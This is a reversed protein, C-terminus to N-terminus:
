NTVATADKRVVLFHSIGFVRLATSEAIDTMRQMFEGLGPRRDAINDFGPYIHSCVEFKVSLGNFLKKIGRQTYIRVHHCFLNRILDPTYNILPLLRFVFKSGVFFGHTEFPYLRNPAFIIVQGGPRLCRYAEAVTARDDEVHEIVEHLLIVDFTNDPFPLKEAPALFINKLHRSAIEVKEEDIDVGYVQDSFESFKTVYTGVGCGVDLIRRGELAVHQRILDLRREQGRRWVYSPHGLTIFKPPALATM